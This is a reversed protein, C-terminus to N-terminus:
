LIVRKLGLDTLMYDNNVIVHKPDHCCSKHVSLAATM